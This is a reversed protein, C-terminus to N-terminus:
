SLTVQSGSYEVNSIRTAECVLDSMGYCYPALRHGVDLKNSPHITEIGPNDITVSMGSKKVKRSIIGPTERFFASWGLCSQKKNTRSGYSFPALQASYFPLEPQKFERRWGKIMATKLPVYQKVQGANSEGQRWLIGKFFL